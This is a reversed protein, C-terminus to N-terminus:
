KQELEEKDQSKEESELDEEEKITIWALGKRSKEIAQLFNNEDSSRWRKCSQKELRRKYLSKILHLDGNGTFIILLSGAPLADYTESVLEDALTAIKELQAESDLASDVSTVQSDATTTNTDLPKTVPTAEAEVKEETEEKEEKEPTRDLESVTLWNKTVSCVDPGDSSEEDESEVDALAEQQDAWHKEFGHFHSFIFKTDTTRAQSVTKDKLEEDSIVPMVSHLKGTSYQRCIGVTDLLVSKHSFESTVKFLSETDSQGFTPGNKFKLQALKLSAVADQTPDHNGTQIVEQLYKESLFRLAHKKGEVSTPYLVSTDIVKEHIIKMAHLDNELSHGVLITDSYIIQSLEQQVDQLTTTVNQLTESTVGSWRTLYDTITNQPKVFKDYLVKHDSDVVSIRTLELGQTTQCMECDVALLRPEATADSSPNEQFRFYHEYSSTQVPFGNELLEVENLVYHSPGPLVQDPKRKESNKTKAPRGLFVNLGHFVRTKGGAARTAIEKEKPFIRKINSMKGKKSLQRFVKSSLSDLMIVAVKPILHKGQCNVWSVPTIGDALAWCVLDQLDRVKLEKKMGSFKVDVTPMTGFVRAHAEQKRRKADPEELDSAKRKKDGAPSNPKPQQTTAAKKAKKVKKIKKKAVTKRAMDM